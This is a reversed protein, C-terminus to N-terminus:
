YTGYERVSEIFTRINEVNLDAARIFRKNPNLILNGGPGLIDIIRKAEDIVEQKKGSRIISFPYVGSIVNRSPVKKALLEPAPSEFKAVHMGPMDELLDLHPSWDNEYFVHPIFGKEQIARIIKKYTPWYFKEVDKTRMYPAMHLPLFVESFVGSQPDPLAQIKSVEYALAGECAELVWDPRRRMDLMMTSFSRIYDAIYDFPAFAGAIIKSVDGREHKDSLKQNMGIYQENVVKKAAAMRIYGLDPETDFVKNVRPVIKNVIFEFPNKNFEPYEDVEMPSIDPHQFFGDNGPVMFQNKVYRHVAANTSAPSVPILDSDLEAALRDAVEYCLKSNYLDRLMSYGYYELAAEINMTLTVPIRSPRKGTFLDTFIQNREEKKTSM